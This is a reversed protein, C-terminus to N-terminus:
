KMVKMLKSKDYKTSKVQQEEQQRFYDIVEKIQCLERAIAIPEKNEQKAKLIVEADKSLVLNCLIEASNEITPVISKLTACSMILTSILVILMLKIKQM